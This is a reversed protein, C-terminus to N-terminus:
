SSRRSVESIVPFASFVRRVGAVRVVHAVHIAIAIRVVVVGVVIIADGGSKHIALGLLSVSRLAYMAFSRTIGESTVTRIFVLRISISRPQFVGRAM